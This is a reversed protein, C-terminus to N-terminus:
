KQRTQFFMAIRESIEDYLPPNAAIRENYCVPFHEARNRLLQFFQDALQKTVFNMLWTPIVALHPDACALLILDTEHESVPILLAGGFVVNVRVDGDQPPAIDAEHSAADRCIVLAAGDSLLDFGQGVIFADRASVPGVGNARVYVSKSFLSLSRCTTSHTLRTFWEAWLENELFVALVNILAAHILGHMRVAVLPQDPLHRWFTKVGHHHKALIWSKDGENCATLLERAARVHDAVRHLLPAYSDVLGTASELDCCSQHEELARQLKLALRHAEGLKDMQMLHELRVLLKECERELEGCEMGEGDSGLEDLLRQVTAQAM